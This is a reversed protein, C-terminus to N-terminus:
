RAQNPRRPIDSQPSDFAMAIGTTATPAPQEVRVVKGTLRLRIRNRANWYELEISIRQGHKPNFGAYFFAGTSSIDRVFAVYGRQSSGDTIRAPLRVFARSSRRPPAGGLMAEEAVVTATKPQAM